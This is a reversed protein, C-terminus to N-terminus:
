FRCTKLHEANQYHSINGNTIILNTILCRFTPKGTGTVTLAGTLPLRGRLDYEACINWDGSCIRPFNLMKRIEVYIYTATRRIQYTLTNWLGSLQFFDFCSYRVVWRRTFSFYFFFGVGIKKRRLFLLQQSYCQGIKWFPSFKGTQQCKSTEYTPLERLSESHM